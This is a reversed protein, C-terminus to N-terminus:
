LKGWIKYIFSYGEKEAAEKVATRVRKYDFTYDYKKGFMSSQQDVVGELGGPGSSFSSKRFSFGPSMDDAGGAGLGSKEEKLMEAFTVEKVADDVRFRATYSLKQKSLFAKREAIVCDLCFVEKKDQFDGPIDQIKSKVIQIINERSVQVGGEKKFGGPASEIM